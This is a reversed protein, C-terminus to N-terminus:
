VGAGGEDVSISKIHVGRGNKVRYDPSGCAPCRIFAHGVEPLFHIAERAEDTLGRTDRLGWEAGCSTCLFTAPETELTYVAHAFPREELLTKLAFDFIERDIAQLEGIVVIVSRLSAPPREGLAASTAEIVSDALAWEHM